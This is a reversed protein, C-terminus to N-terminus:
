NCKRKSPLFALHGQFPKKYSVLAMSLFYTPWVGIPREKIGARSYSWNYARGREYTCKPSTSTKFSEQTIQLYREALFSKQWCRPPQKCRYLSRPEKAAACGYKLIGCGWGSCGSPSPPASTWRTTHTWPKSPFLASRRRRLIYISIPRGSSLNSNRIDSLLWTLLYFYQMQIEPIKMVKLLIDNWSVSPYDIRLLFAPNSYKEFSWTTLSFNSNVTKYSIFLEQVSVKSNEFTPVNM